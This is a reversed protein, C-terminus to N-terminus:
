KQIERPRIMFRHQRWRKFGVDRQVLKLLATFWMASRGSRTVFIGRKCVSDRRCGIVCEIVRLCNPLIDTPLADSLLASSKISNRLAEGVGKWATCV